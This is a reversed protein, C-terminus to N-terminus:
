QVFELVNQSYFITAWLAFHNKNVRAAKRLRNDQEFLWKLSTCSLQIRQSLEDSYSQRHVVRRVGRQIPATTDDWLGNPGKCSQIRADKLVIVNGESLIARFIEGFFRSPPWGKIAEVIEMERFCFPFKHTVM